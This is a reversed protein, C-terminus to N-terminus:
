TRASHPNNAQPDQQSRYLLAGLGFWLVLLLWEPQQLAAPSGPLYLAALSLSLLLASCGVLSGVPVVYPRPMEPEQRRLQLFAAAVLLYALVVGLGGANVLWVLLPRGFWPALASILGILMIARYPTGYRPHIASLWRPLMGDAAMAYIARSGGVIFGNWSSIIGALGALLLLRYAWPSHWLKEAATATPLDGSDVPNPYAVSVAWVILIYWITTLGVAALLASGLRRHAMRSEGATQPIVDFGVFLFPVMILVSAFGALTLESDNHATASPLSAPQLTAGAILYLGAALMACVLVFQLLAAPRVGLCNIVTMLIAGVVGTLAWLLHVEWGAIEWLVPGKLEVFGSLVTPLAVAEFAAVSVYGFTIAWTCLFSTHRGFARKSYAHEGGTVPMASALEAYTLAILAIIAGGTAFALLAGLLGATSLWQGSLIVWSWGVMSGFALAVTDRFGLAKTLTPSNEPM